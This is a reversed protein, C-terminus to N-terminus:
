VAADRSGLKRTSVYKREGGHDQWGSLFNMVQAKGRPVYRRESYHERGGQYFCDSTTM